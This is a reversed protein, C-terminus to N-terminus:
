TKQARISKLKKVDEQVKDHETELLWDIAMFEKTGLIGAIGERGIFGDGIHEHRDRRGGLDVKSDNVHTLKLYRLGIYKDFEGLVIKAKEPTRFDYGAGFAHCTDFCIGAFGPEKCLGDVMQGIEDFKDGIVAGAGASIEILFGASGAYGDLAEKIGAVVKKIGEEKTQEGRSGVHTMIYHAGLTSARELEERIIRSSSKSIRKELSALNIYYPTHIYFEGIGWKKMNAKFEGIIEDTLKPAPGGQPPRTFCQFTECGIAAARQPANQIGGAVSVHAGIKNNKEQNM